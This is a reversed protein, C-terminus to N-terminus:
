VYLKTGISRFIKLPNVKRMICTQFIIFFFTNSITVEMVYSAMIVINM